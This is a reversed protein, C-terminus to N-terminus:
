FSLFLGGSADGQWFGSASFAFLCTGNSCIAGSGTQTVTYSVRGELRLGVHPSAYYKFGLGLLAGFHTNPGYLTDKPVFRTAGLLVVGFPRLKEKPNQEEEFGVMYREVRVNPLLGTFGSAKVETDQRSYLAEFRWTENIPVDLTGGWSLDGGLSYKTGTSSSTFGGGFQYGAFAGVQAAQAAARTAPALLLPSLVVIQLLFRLKM